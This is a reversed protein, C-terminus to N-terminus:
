FYVPVYKDISQKFNMMAFEMMSFHGDQQPAKQLPAADLEHGLYGDNLQEHHNALSSAPMPLFSKVAVVDQRQSTTTTTTTQPTPFQAAAAVDSPRIRVPEEEVTGYCENMRSSVAAVGGHNSTTKLQPSRPPPPLPAAAPTPTPTVSAARDARTLPRVYEIPFLGCSRNDLTTGRLWGQPVYANTDNLNASTLAAAPTLKIIENKRFSLLSADTSTVVYDKVAQVYKSDKTKTRPSSSYHSSSSTNLTKRAKVQKM